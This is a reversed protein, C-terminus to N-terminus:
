IQFVGFGMVLENLLDEKEFVKILYNQILLRHPQNPNVRAFGHFPLLIEVAVVIVNQGELIALV